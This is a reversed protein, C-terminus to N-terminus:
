ESQNIISSLYTNLGKRGMLENDVSEELAQWDFVIKDVGLKKLQEFEENSIADFLNLHQGDIMIHELM